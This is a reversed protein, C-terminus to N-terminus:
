LKKFLRKWSLSGDQCLSQTVLAAKEFETMLIHKTSENINHTSNMSPFAPTIIPMKAQMSPEYILSDPIAFPVTSPDNAIECLTVPSQPGWPYDRWFEFFKLLLQNPQLGPHDM